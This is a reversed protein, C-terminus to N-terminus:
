PLNSANLPVYGEKNVIKVWRQLLPVFPTPHDAAVCALPVRLDSFRIDGIILRLCDKIKESKALRSVGM